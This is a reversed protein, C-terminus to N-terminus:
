LLRRLKAVGFSVLRRSRRGKPSKMGLLCTVLVLSRMCCIWRIISSAKANISSSMSSINPLSSSYSSWSYDYLVQTRKSVALRPNERSAGFWVLNNAVAADLGGFVFMTFKLVQVFEIISVGSWLCLYVRFAYM